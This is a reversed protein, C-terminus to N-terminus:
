LTIKDRVFQRYEDDTFGLDGLLTRYYMTQVLLMITFVRRDIRVGAELHSEIYDLGEDWKPVYAQSIEKIRTHLEQNTASAALIQLRIEQNRLVAYHSPMVLSNVIDDVTIVDLAKMKNYYSNFASEISEEYIDGLVRALLGDRDTFYRYIQTISCNARAAVDAVRLGLIGQSEIEIRASRLISAESEQSRPTRSANM